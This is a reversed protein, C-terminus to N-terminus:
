LRIGMMEPLTVEYKTARVRDAALLAVALAVGVVTGGIHAMYAVGGIMASDLIQFIVDKAFFLGLVIWSSVRWVGRFFWGIWYFVSVNNKPFFVIFMGSIGAIAGSAGLAPGDSTFAYIYSSVVGLGFYVAIYTAHGLKANVANGFVFLFIMNGILHFLDGHTLTAGILAADSAWEGGGHLMWREVPAGVAMSGFANFSIICTFLIIVWNAIPYREMPVDVNYPVIIM